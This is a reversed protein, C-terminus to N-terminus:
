LDKIDPYHSEGTRYLMLWIWLTLIVVIIALAFLINLVVGM